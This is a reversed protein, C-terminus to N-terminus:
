APAAYFCLPMFDDMLLDPSAGQYCVIDKPGPKATWKGDNDLRAFHFGYNGFVSRNGPEIQGYAILYHNDPLDEPANVPKFGKLEMQTSDACVWQYRLNISLPHQQNRLKEIQKMTSDHQSAHSDIGLAAAFMARRAAIPDRAASELDEIQLQEQRDTNLAHNLCNYRSMQEKPWPHSGPQPAFRAFRAIEDPKALTLFDHLGKWPLQLSALNGTFIQGM